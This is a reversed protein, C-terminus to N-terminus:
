VWYMPITTPSTHVTTRMSTTAIADKAICREASNLQIGVATVNTVATMYRRQKSYKSNKSHQSHERNGHRGVNRPAVVINNGVTRVPQIITKDPTAERAEGEVRDQIEEEETEKIEEV